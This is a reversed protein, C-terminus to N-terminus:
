PAVLVEVRSLVVLEPEHPYLRLSARDEVPVPSRDDGVDWAGGDLEPDPVHRVLSAGLDHPVKRVHQVHRRTLERALDGLVSSIRHRRDDHLGRDGLVLHLVEVLVLGFEWPDLDDRDVEAVVVVVRERCLDEAVHPLDRRLLQRLKPALSIARAVADPLRTDLGRVVRVKAAPRPQVLDPDVREPVLHAVELEALLRTRPECEPEREVHPELACGLLRERVPDVERVLVVLPSRVPARDHREVRPVAGHERHRGRRGVLRAHEDTATVGLLESRQELLLSRTVRVVRAQVAGGGPEVRRSRRPLGHGRERPHLLM